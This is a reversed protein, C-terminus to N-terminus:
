LDELHGLRPVVFLGGRFDPAFEEPNRTLPEPRVEDERLTAASPGAVHLPASEDSGVEALQGVYELIRSVQAALPAMDGDPVSLEALRALHEVEQPTISM